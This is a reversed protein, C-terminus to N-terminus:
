GSGRSAGEEDQSHATNQSRTWRLWMAEYADELERAAQAGDTLGSAALRERLATRDPRRRALGAAIAVFEDPSRAVWDGYGAHTLLSAGYRATSRDGSLTVVPTGMWLAECSTTAGNYPFTDLAIDVAGYLALHDDRTATRAAFELRSPDIGHEAFADRMRRGVDPDALQRAKLLLRSDPVANLVRAWLAIVAPNMKSLNNFSGFTVHDRVAAEPLPCDPPAYCLFGGPLRWLSETWWAEAGEPDALSDTLRYDMQPLGTTAGYGLWTVQVPAARRAFVPLRNHGTHGTLDVLVQIGDARIRDFLAADSDLRTNRWEGAYGRLTETVADPTAVDSYAYLAIRSPDHRRFVSDLFYAVSHEHFDPSVYGVRLPGGAPLDFEPAPVVPAHCQAWARHAAVLKAATMAPDYGLCMLLNSHIGPDDPAYAVARTWSAQAEDLRGLAKLLIAYNNHTEARGPDVVIARRCATEAEAFRGLATLAAAKHSWATADDPHAALVMDFCEIAGDPNGTELLVVGLNARAETYDPRRRLAAQYCAAAKAPDGAQRLVNGYNNHIEPMEPDLMLAKRLTREAEAVAGTAALAIGLENWLPASGPDLAAAARLAAIGAAHGGMALRAAATLGEGQDIM